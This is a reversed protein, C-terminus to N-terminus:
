FSERGLYEALHHRLLVRARHLRSKLAAESVELIAAAEATSLQEVDRLILVVRLDEPLRAIGNELQIRLESLEIRRLLDGSWDAVYPSDYDTAELYDEPHRRRVRQLAANVAIRFLWTGVDSQGRFAERFRYASLFADQTADEAEEHSGTIRYALSYLRDAFEEVLSEFSATPDTPGEQPPGM